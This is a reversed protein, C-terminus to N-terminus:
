RWRRAGDASDMELRNRGRAKAMALALEARNITEDLSALIPAAGASATVSFGNARGQQQVESLTGVIRACIAQARGASADPLLVGIRPGDLRSIIDQRRTLARVLEAVVVLVEDGVAYGHRLNIARFHDVDFLALCGRRGEKCLHGLMTVFARRNTLGTLPDIMAATFLEGEHRLRQDINRMVGVAGPADGSGGHVGRLQIEFWREQGDGTRAAFEAWDPDNRGALAAVLKAKLATVSDPTAIDSLHRGALEAKPPLGFRECGPSADLIVGAGDTRLVIDQASDRLLLYLATGEQPTMWQEMKGGAASCDWGGRSMGFLQSRGTLSNTGTRFDVERGKNFVKRCTAIRNAPNTLWALKIM